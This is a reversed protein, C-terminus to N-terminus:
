VDIFTTRVKYSIGPVLLVSSAGCILHFSNDVIDAVTGGNTSNFHIYIPKAFKHTMKFNLILGQQKLDTGDYVFNPDQLKYTKDKLIRFRGFFAPNQFMNIADAAGGSSFVDEANLQTANTQKDLVLALRVKSPTDASVQSTQAPVGFSGRIKISLVQIKRGIRNNYDSGLVPVCLTNLTVPDVEAGSWSSSIAVINVAVNSDFYKRETLAMPTGLSRPVFSRTAGQSRVQVGSNTRRRKFSPGFSNFKYTAYTRSRKYSPRAM